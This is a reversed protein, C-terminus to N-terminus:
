GEAHRQLLPWDIGRRGVKPPTDMYGRSLLYCLNRYGVLNRCLLAITMARAQNADTRDEPVLSTEAGLIAKVGAKKAAKYFDVAGFMNDHDTLAVAPAQDAKARDVVQAVRITSDLMSYESHVHLHVFSM